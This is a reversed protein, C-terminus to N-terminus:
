AGVMKSYVSRADSANETGRVIARGDRFLTLEYPPSSCKLLFENSEVPGFVALRRGMATLDLDGKAGPVLQVANRGCLTVTRLPECALYETRGDACLPCEPDKGVRVSRSRHTWADFSTLFVEDGRLEGVLWRLALSVELSAVISTIPAIVGQTDCTPSSGVPPLSGVACRLCPGDPVVPFALGYSGVAAGYIWPLGATRCADNLVFRTEFNDLGDLVLDLGAIWDEVTSANLDDVSAEIRVSRNIQGLRREAAVAKPLNQEADSEDFLTQRQLNSHEVTDRDIIRLSGVGARVLQDAIVTGLAGLGVIGIRSALLRQQGAEGIPAFRIQRSYRDAGSV